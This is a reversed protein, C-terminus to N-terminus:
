RSRYMSYYSVCLYLSFRRISMRIKTQESKYLSIRKNSKRRGKRSYIGRKNWEKFPWFLVFLNFNFLLFSFHEDKSLNIAYRVDLLIGHKSVLYYIVVITDYYQIVRGHHAEAFGFGIM